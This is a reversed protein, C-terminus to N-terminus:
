IFRKVVVNMEWGGHNANNPYLQMSFQAGNSAAFSDSIDIKYANTGPTTFHTQSNYSQYSFGFTQDLWIKQEGGFRIQSTAAIYDTSVLKSSNVSSGTSGVTNDHFSKYFYKNGVSENNYRLAMFNGVEVALGIGKFIIQLGKYNNDELNEPVIFQKVDTEGAAWVYNSSVVTQGGVTNLENAYGTNLIQASDVENTSVKFIDTVKDNYNVTLLSM